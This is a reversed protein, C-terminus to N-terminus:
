NEEDWDDLDDNWWDSPMYMFDPAGIGYGFSHGDEAVKDNLYNIADDIAEHYWEHEPTREEEYPMGYSEALEIIAEGIYIGRHNDFVCGTEM